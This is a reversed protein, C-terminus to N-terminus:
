CINFVEDPKGSAKHEDMAEGYMIGHVYAQGLFKWHDGWKRLICPTRVGYLVVVVDRPELFKVGLGIFGETTVFVRRNESADRFAHDFRAASEIDEDDNLRARRVSKPYVGDRLGSVYGDFSACDEPTVPQGEYNAGGLLVSSLNGQDRDRCLGEVEEIWRLTDRPKANYQLVTSCTEVRDICCGELSLIDLNTQLPTTDKLQSRKGGADFIIPMNIPHVYKDRRRQWRPVWSLWDDGQFDQTTKHRVKRLVREVGAPNETIAYLTADRYVELLTKRYEPTLPKPVTEARRCCEMLGLVGFVHDKDESADLNIALSLVIAVSAGDRGQRTFHGHEPDIHDWLRHGNKYGATRKLSGPLWLKKHRLWSSIRVLDLLKIEETGHVCIAQSALAAEQMVWLRSFWPSSLLSQLANVDIRDDMGVQDYLAHNKEDYLVSELNTLNDTQSRMEELVLEAARINSRASAQDLDGLDIWTVTSSSYVKGMMAVQTSREDPNDQDICVADIWLTREEHPRRLRRLIAVSSDPALLRRDHVFVEVRDPSDGWCYSITEYNPGDLLSVHRLSCRIPDDGEGARLELVRIEKKAQDLPRYEYKQRQLAPSTSTLDLRKLSLALASPPSGDRPDNLPTTTSDSLDAKPNLELSSVPGEM